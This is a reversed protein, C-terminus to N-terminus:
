HLSIKKLTTHSTIQLIQPINLCPMDLILHIFNINEGKEPEEGGQWLIEFAAM